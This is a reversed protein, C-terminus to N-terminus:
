MAELLSGHDLSWSCGCPRWRVMSLPSTHIMATKRLPGIQDIFWEEDWVDKRKESGTHDHHQTGEELASNPCDISQQMEGQWGCQAFVNGGDVAAKEWAQWLQCMGLKEERWQMQVERSRMKGVERNCIWGACHCQYTGQITCYIYKQWAAKWTISLRPDPELDRTELVSLIYFLPQPEEWIDQQQESDHHYQSEAGTPSVRAHLCM